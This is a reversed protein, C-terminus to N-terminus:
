AQRVRRLEAVVRVHQREVFKGYAHGVPQEEIPSRRSNGRTRSNTEDPAVARALRGQEAGDGALQHGLMALHLDRRLVRM